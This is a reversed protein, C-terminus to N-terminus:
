LDRVVDDQTTELSRMNGITLLMHVLLIIMELDLHDNRTEDLM